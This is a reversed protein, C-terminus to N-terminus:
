LVTATMLGFGRKGSDNGLKLEYDGVSNWYRVISQSHVDYTTCEGYLTHIHTHTGIHTYMHKVM